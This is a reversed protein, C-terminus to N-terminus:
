NESEMKELRTYYDPMEVLHDMAIERAQAEDNTHEMEVRVGEALQLEIFDLPVDHMKALSEATKSDALGGPVENVMEGDQAIKYLRM